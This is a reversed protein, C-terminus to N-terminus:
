VLDKERSLQQRKRITLSSRQSGAIPAHPNPYPGALKQASASLSSRHGPPGPPGKVESTWPSM